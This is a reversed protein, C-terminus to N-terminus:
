RLINGGIPPLSPFNINIPPLGLLFQFSANSLRHFLDNGVQVQTAGWDLARYGTFSCPVKDGADNLCAPDGQIETFTGNPAGISPDPNSFIPDLTKLTQVSFCTCTTHIDRRPQEEDDFVRLFLPTPGSPVPRPRLKPFCNKDGNVCTGPDVTAEPFVTAITSGGAISQTPCVFYLTSHVGSGEFPAVLTAGTRLPNWVANLSIAEPNKISIPDIVRSLRGAQVNIWFIRAHIPNSLPLLTGNEGFTNDVGGIAVLGASPIPDGEQINNFNIFEGENTTLAFGVSVGGRTCTQDYFFMHISRAGFASEEPPANSGVPSAIELISMSGVEPDAGDSSAFGNALVYPIVAGSAILGLPDATQAIAPAAVAVLGVAILGVILKRM